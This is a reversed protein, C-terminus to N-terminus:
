LCVDHRRNPLRGQKCDLIWCPAGFRIHTHTHTNTETAAKGCNQGGFNIMGPWLCQGELISYPLHPHQM